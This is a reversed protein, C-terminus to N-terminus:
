AINLLPMIYAPMLTVIQSATNVLDTGFMIMAAQMESGTAQVWQRFTHIDVSKRNGEFESICSRSRNLVDALEQQTFGAAERFKKLMNGYDM